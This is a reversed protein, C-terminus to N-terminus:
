QMVLPVEYNAQWTKLGVTRKKSHGEEKCESIRSKFKKGQLVLWSIWLMVIAPELMKLESSVPSGKKEMKREDFIKKKGKVLTCRLLEVLFFFFFRSECKNWTIGYKTFSFSLAIIGLTNTYMHKLVTKKLFDAVAEKHFHVFNWQIWFSGANFVLWHSLWLPWKELQIEISLKKLSGLPLTVLYYTHLWLFLTCIQQYLLVALCSCSNLVEKLFLFHNFAGLSLYFFGGWFRVKNNFDYAFSLLEQKEVIKKILYWNQSVSYELFLYTLYKCHKRFKKCVLGVELKLCLNCDRKHVLDKSVWENPVQVSSWEM